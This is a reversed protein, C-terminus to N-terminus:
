HANGHQAAFPTPLSCAGHSVQNRRGCPIVDLIPMITGTKSVDPLAAASCMDVLTVLSRRSLSEAYIGLYEM